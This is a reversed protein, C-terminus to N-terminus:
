PPVRGRDRSRLRGAVGHARHRQASTGQRGAAPVPPGAFLPDPLDALERRWFEALRVLHEGRLLARQRRALEHFQPAPPLDPARGARHATYLMTLERCLVGVSAADGAVHHLCLAFIWEQEGVRSLAARIVRGTALDFPRSAFEALEDRGDGRVSMLECPMPVPPGACHVPQDDVLTYTGRLVDHRAMLGDLALRFASVDLEGTLRYAKVIHYSSDDPRLQHALWLGQQAFSLPNATSTTV